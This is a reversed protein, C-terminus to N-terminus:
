SNISRFNTKMILTQYEIDSHTTKMPYVKKSKKMILIFFINDSINMHFVQILQNLLLFNNSAGNTKM